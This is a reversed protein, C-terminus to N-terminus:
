FIKHELTYFLLEEDLYSVSKNQWNLIAKTYTRTGQSLTAPPRQLNHSNIRYIGLMEDTAFVWRNGEKEAVVMRHYVIPSYSASQPDSTIGLLDKLSICMLIEGRISVIGLFISNSRHPLSHVSVPETVESLHQAGLALWEGGLRFIGLSLTDVAEEVKVQALLSTRESLYSAPVERELLTRGATTYVPCNRCHNYQQLEPCSRDGQVGIQNWCDEAM